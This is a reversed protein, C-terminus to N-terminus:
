GRILTGLCRHLCGLLVTGYFWHNGDAVAPELKRHDSEEGGVTALNTVGGNATVSVTLQGSGLRQTCLRVPKAETIYTACFM